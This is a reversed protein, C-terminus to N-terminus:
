TKILTRYYRCLPVLSNQAIFKVLTPGPIRELMFIELINLLTENHTLDALIQEMTRQEEPEELDVKLSKALESLQAGAELM